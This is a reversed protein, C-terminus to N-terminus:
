EHAEQRFRYGVGRVTEIREGADGLKRRLSKIHVDITRELVIADGIAADMLDYRPFARGPQKILTELLRFETPTLSIPEGKVTVQHARKDVRIGAAELVDGTPEPNAQRRLLVKIKQLLVRVSFPKTVYDDAGVAFGVVQDTEEGKATLMLIIIGATRPSARLERCIDLGTLGPLMLDLIVLEPIQMQAKRLGERGEKAIVVEYGERQLNYSLVEVLSAEDEVILIKSKAM